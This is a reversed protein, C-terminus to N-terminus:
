EFINNFYLMNEGMNCDLGTIYSKNTFLSDLDVKENLFIYSYAKEIMKKCEIIGKDFLDFFSENSTMKNDNPNCWLKHENNFIDINDIKKGYYSLTGLANYSRGNDIKNFIRNKIGIPDFILRYFMKEDKITKNILKVINEKNYVKLYLRNFDDILDRDIRKLTILKYLKLKYPNPNYYKSIIFCDMAREIKTHLGRYILTKEDDVNYVGTKHFIYPHVNSDLCYHAIFGCLYSFMKNNKKCIDILELFFKKSDNRHMYNGFELSKKNKKGNYFYAFFFPDPGATAFDYLALNNIRSKVDEELENLVRRGFFHHMVLDSM